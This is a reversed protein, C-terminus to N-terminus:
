IKINFVAVQPPTLFRAAIHTTGIGSNVYLKTGNEKDIDYFGKPYKEAMSTTVVKLFPIRVQGGHSHGALILDVGSGKLGDAMDPEHMLVLKYDEDTMNAISAKIDPNGLLGDDVGGIFISKEESVAVTTGTNTLLTFGSEKMITEYHRSAGGGYDRNGWIAYKGLKAEFQSLYPSIDYVQSFQSCNDMLDGTFVVLDPNQANVKKILKDLKEVPYYKDQLHIDTIQVIKLDQTAQKNEKLSYKKVTLLNPEIYFADSFVLVGVLITLSILGCILKILKKM